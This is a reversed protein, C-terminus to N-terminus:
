KGTNEDSSGFLAEVKTTDKSKIAQNVVTESEKIQQRIKVEKLLEILYTNLKELALILGPLKLLFDIVSM